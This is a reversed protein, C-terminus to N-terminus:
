ADEATSEWGICRELFDSHGGFACCADQRVGEDLRVVGVVIRARRDV